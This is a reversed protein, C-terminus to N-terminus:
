SYYGSFYSRLFSDSDTFRHEKTDDGGEGDEETSSQELHKLCNQGTGSQIYRDIDRSM